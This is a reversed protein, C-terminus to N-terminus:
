AAYIFDRRRRIGLVMFLIGLALFLGWSPLQLAPSALTDWLAPALRHLSMQASALSAPSVTAWFQGASTMVIHSTAISKMGDVVGAVVAAAILWIGLTRSIFHLMSADRNQETGNRRGSLIKAVKAYVKAPTLGEM